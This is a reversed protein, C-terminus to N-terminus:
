RVVEKDATDGCKRILIQIALDLAEITRSHRLRLPRERCLKLGYIVQHIDPTLVERGSVMQIAAELSDIMITEKQLDPWNQGAKKIKMLKRYKVDNLCTNLGSMFQKYIM